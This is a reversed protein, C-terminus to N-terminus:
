SITELFIAPFDKEILIKEAKKLIKQRKFINREHDSKILLKDYESNSYGYYSFSTNKTKFISLFTMPDACDGSWGARIIEYNGNIRSNIYTSWEENKLQVDINLNKKWQNQIFEAIKRQRDSINYKVKLLPFNKGNPYGADVM